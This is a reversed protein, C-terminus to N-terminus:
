AFIIENGVCGSYVTGLYSAPLGVLETDLFSYCVGPGLLSPIFVNLM